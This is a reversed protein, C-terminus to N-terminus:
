CGCVLSLAAVLGRQRQPLTQVPRKKDTSRSEGRLARLQGLSLWGEATPASPCCSIPNQGFPKDIPPFTEREFIRHM